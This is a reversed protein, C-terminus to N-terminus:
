SPLINFYFDHIIYFIVSRTLVGVLGSAIMNDDCESDDITGTKMVIMMVVAPGNGNKVAMKIATEVILIVRRMIVKEVLILLVAEVVVTLMM